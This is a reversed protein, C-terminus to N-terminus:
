RRRYKKPRKWYPYQEPTVKEWLGVKHERARRELRAFENKHEHDFRTDAYAHGTRLLAENLMEGTDAHYVYALLRDYKDRTRLPSLEIRAQQGLMMTRTFTSAQPGFYMQETYPGAVEPTDVGWLRIRTTSRNGDPIAVDITDGDVIKTVRALRDHYRQYDNGPPRALELWGLREAAIVALALVVLLTAVPHRRFRSPLLRRRSPRTRRTATLPPIM